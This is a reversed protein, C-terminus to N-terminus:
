SVVEIRAEVFGDPEPWWARVTGDPGIILWVLTHDYAGARDRRSPIAEGVPHSHYLGAVRRGAARETRQLSLHLATDLEFSDTAGDPALNASAVARDIVLPATGDVPGTLLGCCERPATEAAHDRLTALVGAALHLARPGSM